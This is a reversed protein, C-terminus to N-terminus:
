LINFLSNALKFFFNLWSYCSELFTERSFNIKLVQGLAFQKYIYLQIKKKKIDGFIYKFYMLHVLIYNKVGSSIIDQTHCTQHFINLLDFCFIIIFSYYKENQLIKNLISYILGLWMNEFIVLLCNLMIKNKCVASM